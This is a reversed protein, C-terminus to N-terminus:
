EIRKRPAEKAQRPHGEDGERVEQMAHVELFRVPKNHSRMAHQVPTDEDHGRNNERQRSRLRAEVRHLRIVESIQEGVTFVPNLSTMPEQFIMSIASGRLRRKEREGLTTIDKNNLEITGGALYGHPRPILQIISLATISKGCGSEGVLALTKGKEISFSVGDVARTVPSTKEEGSFYTQLNKVKLITTM